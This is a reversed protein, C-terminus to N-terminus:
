GISVTRSRTAGFSAAESCSRRGARRRQRSRRSGSCHRRSCCRSEARPRCRQGCRPDDVEGSADALAEAALADFLRDYDASRLTELQGRATEFVSTVGDGKASSVEMKAELRAANVLKAAGSKAVREVQRVYNDHVTDASRQADDLILKAHEKAEAIVADCDAQSQEDLARLIDEIAM